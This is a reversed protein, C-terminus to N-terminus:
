QSLIESVFKDFYRLTSLWYIICRLLMEYSRVQLQYGHKCFCGWVGLTVCMFAGRKHFAAGRM